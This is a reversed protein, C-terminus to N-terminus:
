ALRRQLMILMKELLLRRNVNTAVLEYITSNIMLIAEELGASSVSETWILPKEFRYFDDGRRCLSQMLGDRYLLAVLELLSILDSREALSAAWSLLQAASDRGTAINYALTKAERFREDFDADDAMDFAYGPLGGSLRALLDAKDEDTKNYKILLEYIESSSMPQLTYRQCRSLITDYVARPQEALLIFTLGAPPEELIKLLSSSTEATMTEAQDILCVKLDSGLYLNERIARFQETKLKRKEPELYFFGTHNGSLFTRCSKCKMCPNIGQRDPCLLAQSLLKGWSTKGSGSPGTLLVAHSLRGSEIAASLNLRLEQQGALQDYSM